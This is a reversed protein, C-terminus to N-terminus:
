AEVSLGAKLTPINLNLGGSRNFKQQEQKGKTITYKYPITIYYLMNYYAITYRLICFREPKPNLGDKARETTLKLSERAVQMLDKQCQGM